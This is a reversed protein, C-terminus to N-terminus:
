GELRKITEEVLGIDNQERIIHNMANVLSILINHVDGNTKIVMIDERVDINIISLYRFGLKRKSLNKNYHFIKPKKNIM